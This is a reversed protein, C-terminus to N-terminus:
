PSIGAALLSFHLKEKVRFSLDFRNERETALTKFVLEAEKQRLRTIRPSQCPMPVPFLSDKRVLLRSPLLTM